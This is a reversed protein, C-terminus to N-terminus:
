QQIDCLKRNIYANQQRRVVETLGDRLTNLMGNIDPIRLDTVGKVAGDFSANRVITSVLGICQAAIDIAEYYGLDLSERRGNIRSRM